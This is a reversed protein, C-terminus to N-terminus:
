MYETEAYDIGLRMHHRHDPQEHDVNIPDEIHQHQQHQQQHHSHHPLDFTRQSPIHLNDNRDANNDNSNDDDDDDDGDDDDSAGDFREM